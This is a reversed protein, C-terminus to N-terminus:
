RLHTQRQGRRIKRNRGVPRRHDGAPHQGCRHARGAKEPKRGTEHIKIGRKEVVIAKQRRKGALDTEVYISEGTFPDTGTVVMLSSWTSPTPTFIQVQEAVIGLQRTMVDRLGMMHAETCGPHAAIFYYTLFQPKGAEATAKDFMAKFTLLADTGPKGMRRLVPEETHEPAIKMQGSVHHRVVESLYRAGHASDAIVLDYRIGSAVFVRKVGALERLKRLLRMQPRHDVGLQPCIAPFLCRRNQCAGQEIKKACEFGYMNATPGGADLINGKFQPLGTLVAAEALISAESRWSVRRGQHLAIACFNCEGYCGRHTTISCRITELARVAGERRYFPHLDRQYDLGYVDDLAQQSLPPAPPNQVLFRTDQRQCLTKATIPDMNRYFVTFMESFAAPDTSVAAFAPLVIGDKPCTNAIYCLGALDTLAKGAALRRALKVVSQDAMGYLLYDAKADFLISRRIRESWFDYHAVRRLSAEIGGLVLPVTAKFHRRILHSYVISARDPRKTNFGGPTFDDSRRRKKLATYNAVMSDVCGGTIGWFLRPQGLRSIDGDSAIDPQAIVGVRFGAAALVRGVVAAGIFPSDIYSDGTVLIVDLRDWGFGTMEDATTPLYAGQPLSSFPRPKGKAQRNAANGSRRFPAHSVPNGGTAIAIM